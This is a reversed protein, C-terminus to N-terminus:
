RYLYAPIHIKNDSVHFVDGLLGVITEDLETVHELFPAREADAPRLARARPEMLAIPSPLANFVVDPIHYRAEPIQGDEITHWWSSRSRKHEGTFTSDMSSVSLTRKRILASNSSGSTVSRPPTTLGLPVPESPRSEVPSTPWCSTAAQSGSAMSATPAPYRSPESREDGDPDSWSLITGPSPLATVPSIITEGDRRRLARPRPLARVPNIHASSLPAPVFSIPAPLMRSYSPLSSEDTRHYSPSPLPLRRRPEEMPRTHKWEHHPPQPSLSFNFRPPRSFTSPSQTTERRRYDYGYVAPSRTPSRVYPVRFRTEMPFPSGPHLEQSFHFTHQRVPRSTTPVTRPSYYTPSRQHSPHPTDTYHDHLPTAHSRLDSDDDTIAEHLGPYRDPPSITPPSIRLTLPPPRSSGQSVAPSYMRSLHDPRPDPRRLQLRESVPSVRLETSTSTSQSATAEAVQEAHRLALVDARRQGNIKCKKHSIQCGACSTAIARRNKGSPRREVCPWDRSSCVDCRIETPVYDGSNLM